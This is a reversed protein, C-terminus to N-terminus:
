TFALIMKLINMVQIVSIWSGGKDLWMVTMDMIVSWEYVAGGGWGGWRESRKTIWLAQFFSLPCLFFPGNNQSMQHWGSEMPKTLSHFLEDACLVSLLNNVCESKQKRGLTHASSLYTYSQKITSREPKADSDSGVQKMRQTSKQYLKFVLSLERIRLIMMRCYLIIHFM